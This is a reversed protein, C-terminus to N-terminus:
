FFLKFIKLNKNFLILKLEIENTRIDFREWYSIVLYMYVSLRKFDTLPFYILCKAGIVQWEDTM